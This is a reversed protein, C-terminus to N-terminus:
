HVIIYIFNLLNILNCLDGLNIHNDLNIYLLKFLTKPNILNGLDGRNIHNDM